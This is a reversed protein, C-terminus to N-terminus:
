KGGQVIKPTDRGYNGISYFYIGDRGVPSKNFVRFVIFETGNTNLQHFVQLIRHRNREFVEKSGAYQNGYRIEQPTFSVCDFDGAHNTVLFVHNRAINELSEGTRRSYEVM